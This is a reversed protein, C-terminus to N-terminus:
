YTATKWELSKSKLGQAGNEAYIARFVLTSTAIPTIYSFRM